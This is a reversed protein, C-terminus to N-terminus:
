LGHPTVKDPHVDWSILEKFVLIEGGGYVTIIKVVDKYIIISQNIAVSPLIM